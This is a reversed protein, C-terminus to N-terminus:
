IGKRLKKSNRRARKIGRIIAEPTRDDQWSRSLALLVQAPTRSAQAPKRRALYEKTLCLIQQSVSRNEASALKEIQAYLHADIGKIQLNAMGREEEVKM